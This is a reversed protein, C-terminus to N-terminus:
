ARRKTGPDPIVTAIIVAAWYALGAVPHVRAILWAGPVVVVCAVVPLWLFVWVAFALFKLAM